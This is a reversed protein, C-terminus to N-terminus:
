TVQLSGAAYHSLRELTDAPPSWGTVALRGPDAILPGTWGSWEEGRGFLTAATKLLGPPVNVLSADRGLGRRMAAIIESVSVPARDSVILPCPPTEGAGLVHLIAEALAEVDILSRSANLGAMPLPVPLQALRWLMGLGGKMGPGYVPVPRLIVFRKADSFAESVLREGSLKSRGYDDQPAEQWEETVVASTSQGVMARISSIFVFRGSSHKCAAQALRGPQIANAEHYAQYPEFSKGGQAVGACYVVHRVGRLLAEWERPDADGPPMRVVEPFHARIREPM